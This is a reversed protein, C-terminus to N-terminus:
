FSGKKLLITMKWFEINWKIEELFKKPLSYEFTYTKGKVQTYQKVHYVNQLIEDEKVFEVILGPTVNWDNELVRYKKM